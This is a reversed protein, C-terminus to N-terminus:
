GRDPGPHTLADVRERVEEADGDVRHARMESGEETEEIRFVLLSHRDRPGHWGLYAYRRGPEAGASVELEDDSKAAEVFEDLWQRITTSGHTPRSQDTM